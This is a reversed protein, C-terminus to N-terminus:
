LFRHLYNNNSFTTSAESEVYFLFFGGYINVFDKESVKTYVIDSTYKCSTGIDFCLIGIIISWM